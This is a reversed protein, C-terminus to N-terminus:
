LGATVVRAITVVDVAAAGSRLLARACAELTAGTTMVDDVLLVREDRLMPVHRGAVRFAGQVNRRRATRSKGGQTGTRRKRILLDPVARLGAQRALANALMASQNYRRGLLRSWHLPVPAVIDADALLPAAPRRLWNVLAPGLDTRDAHKFALIMGRSADDYVFAARARDYPPRARTCDGCLAGPGPDFPLPVGCAHCQPRGLFTVADWCDPCLGAASAVPADCAACVPPWLHDRAGTMVSKLIAALRTM